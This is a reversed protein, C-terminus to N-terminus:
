VSFVLNYPNGLGDIGGNIVKFLQLRDMRFSRWDKVDIDYVVVTSPWKQRTSDMTNSPPLIRGSLSCSMKRLMGRQTIFEAYCEYGHLYDIIEDRSPLAM